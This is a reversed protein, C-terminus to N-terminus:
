KTNNILVKSKQFRSGTKGTKQQQPFLQEIGSLHLTPWLAV